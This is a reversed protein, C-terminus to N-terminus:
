GRLNPSIIVVNNICKELEARNTTSELNWAYALIDMTMYGRSSADVIAIPWEGAHM